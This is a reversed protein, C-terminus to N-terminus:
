TGPLHCDGDIDDCRFLMGTRDANALRDYWGLPEATAAATGFYRRFFGSGTGYRLIHARAHEAVAVAESLGRALEARQTANCTASIPIDRTAGAAWSYTTAAGAASAAVTRPVTAMDRARIAAPHSPAALSSTASLLLLLLALAKPSM